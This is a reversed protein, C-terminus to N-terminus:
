LSVVGAGLLAYIVSGPLSSLAASLVHTRLPVGSAGAILNALNPGAWPLLRLVVLSRLDDRAHRRAWAPLRELGRAIQLERDGRRWIGYMVTAGLVCGVVNCTLAIALPFVAGNVIPILSTGLPTVATLAQLVIAALPALSGWRVFALEPDEQAGLWWRSAVGLSLLTTLQWFFSTRLVSGLMRPATPWVSAQMKTEM